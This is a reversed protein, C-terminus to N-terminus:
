HEVAAKTPTEDSHPRLNRGNLQSAAHDERRCVCGAGPSGVRVGQSGVRVGQSGGGVSASACTAFSAARATRPRERARGRDHLHLLSPARRFRAGHRQAPGQRVRLLRAQRAHQQPTHRVRAAGEATGGREALPQRKYM